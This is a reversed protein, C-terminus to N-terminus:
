GVIVCLQKEALNQAVFVPVSYYEPMASTGTIMKSIGLDRVADWQGVRPAPELDRTVRIKVLDHKDKKTTVKAAPPTSGQADDEGGDGSTENGGANEVDKDVPPPPTATKAAPQKKDEDEETTKIKIKAM